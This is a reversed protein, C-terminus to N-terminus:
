AYPADCDAAVIVVDHQRQMVDLAPKDQQCVHCWTATFALVQHRPGPNDCGAALLLLALLLRQM